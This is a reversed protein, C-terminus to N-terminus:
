PSLAVRLGHTLYRVRGDYHDRSAPRVYSSDNKWSGSRIIHALCDGDDWSSGDTPAGQYNKHWCDSVWQDVGGGMAFLGFPNPRLADVKVPQAAPQLENCDKCDAMGSELKEGWWYRTRTRGRAAYEWEAETPLRFKKQTVRALWAVFQQADNWSVNTVPADDEGTPMFSCAKAAVCANWARITIPFKSIAFPKITVGHIPRESPDDNSGMAFTGGPLSAMEPENAAEPRPPPAIIM